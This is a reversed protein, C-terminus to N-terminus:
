APPAPTAPAPAANLIQVIANIYAQVAADDNPKGADQLAQKILPGMLTTVAILKQAGGKEQGAAVAAQEATVVASVTQNFLPGLAPAFISVAVEGAGEAWPLIFDLGKKFDRGVTQLFSKFSM